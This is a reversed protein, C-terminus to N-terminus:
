HGSGAARLVQLPIRFARNTAGLDEPLFYAAGQSVAMAERGLQVGERPPLTVSWRQVSRDLANKLGMFRSTTGAAGPLRVLGCALLEDGLWKWDQVALGPLGSSGPAIGLGRAVLEPGTLSRLLKGNLDWVYVTETDWAAGLIREQDAEVALAGIHDDIAVEFEAQARAGAMLSALAYARLVSRGARRSEAIPVWLRSGDSQLGGPHDLSTLAGTADVPTIDWADWDARGPQTRLLLARRPVVDDRRATVYFQDDVIEMGQTHARAPSGQVQLAPLPLTQFSLDASFLRPAMAALTGVTWLLPWLRPGREAKRLDGGSPLSLTM